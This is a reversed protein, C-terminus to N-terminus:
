ELTGVIAYGVVILAVLLVVAGTPHREELRDAWEWWACLADCLLDCM